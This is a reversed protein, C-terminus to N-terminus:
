ESIRMCQRMWSFTTRCQSFSVHIPRKGRQGFPIVIAKDNINVRRKMQQNTQNFPRFCGRKSIVVFCCSNIDGQTESRILDCKFLLLMKKNRLAIIGFSLVSYNKYM